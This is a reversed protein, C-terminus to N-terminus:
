NSRAIDKRIRTLLNKSGEELLDIVLEFGQAGGYYPDPVEKFKKNSIFNAMKLIKNSFYKKHDLKSIDSYNDNDMTIIYDFDEFDKKPDFQRARSELEYGRASAHKRMRPDPLEGTHYGITGASDVYFNIDPSLEKVFKKFIGEATPSRCINGMCVFLVKPM